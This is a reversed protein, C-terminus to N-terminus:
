YLVGLKDLLVHIYDGMIRACYEWLKDSLVHIYDLSGDM